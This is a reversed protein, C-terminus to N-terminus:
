QDDLSGKKALLAPNNKHRSADRKTKKDMNRQFAESLSIDMQNALCVVIFLVDALEDAIASKVCAPKENPKFSQEGYERGILRAVEGVEETLNSLNTLENFYSVGVSNIWKDVQQQLNVLDANATPETNIASQEMIEEEITNTQKPLYISDNHDKLLRIFQRLLYQYCQNPSGLADFKDILEHDNTIVRAKIKMRQSNAFMPFKDNKISVKNIFMKFRGSSSNLVGSTALLLDARCQAEPPIAFCFYDSEIDQKVPHM